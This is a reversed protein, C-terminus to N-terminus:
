SNPAQKFAAKRQGNLLRGLLTHRVLLQYSVLLLATVVTFILMFKLFPSWDRYRVIAQGLVVLPLHALYLWYASDSLYRITANEGPLVARFFGILAISMLWAYIVQFLGSWVVQGITM